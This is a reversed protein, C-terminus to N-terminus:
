KEDVDSGYQVREVDRRWQVFVPVRHFSDRAHGIPKERANRKSIHRTTANSIHQHRDTM